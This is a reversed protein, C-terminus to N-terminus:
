EGAQPLEDAAIECPTKPDGDASDSPVAPAAPPVSDGPLAGSEPAPIRADSPPADGTDAPEDGATETNGTGTNGTETDPTEGEAAQKPAADTDTNETPAEEDGTTGTGVEEGAANETDPGEGEANETDAEEGEAAEPQASDAEACERVEPAAEDGSGDARVRAVEEHGDGDPTATDGTTDLDPVDLGAPDPLGGAGGLLGGLQNAVRGPLGTVAGLDPLSGLGAGPIGGPQLASAWTELPNSLLPGTPPEVAPPIMSAQSALPATGVAPPAQAGGWPPAVDVSGIPPGSTQQGAWAGRRPGLDGPIDFWVEGDREVAATAARYAAGVDDSVSRMAAVWQGRIATDVFPKVQGDVIEARDTDGALVARAAALWEGRQAQAAEDVSVTVRVQRDVLRWLEDRLDACADVATGLRQVVQRATDGHRDLFEDVAHGGAGKWSNMLQGTQARTLDLSERAEALVARLVACDAELMDLDLGDQLGYWQRVQGDSSTLDPHTYGRMRSALVYTQLTDVAAMGEALRGQVDWRATMRNAWGPPPAPRLTPTVIQM